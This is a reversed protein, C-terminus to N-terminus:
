ASNVSYSLSNLMAMQVLPSQLSFGVADLLVVARDRVLSVGYCRVIDSVVSAVRESEVRLDIRLAEPRCDFARCVGEFKEPELYKPGALVENIFRPADPMRGGEPAAHVSEAIAYHRVSLVLFEGAVYTWCLLV